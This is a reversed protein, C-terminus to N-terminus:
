FRLRFGASGSYTREAGNLIASSGMNFYLNESVNASLSANLHLLDKTPASGVNEFTAGSNVSITSAKDLNGFRHIWGAGITPVVPMRGWFWVTALNVGVKTTGTFITKAATHVAADPNGDEVVRAQRMGNYQVGIHPQAVISGLSIRRGAEFAGTVRHNTYSSSMRRLDGQGDINIYRSTDFFERSYTMMGDLYWKRWEFTGTVGVKPILIDINTFNENVDVEVRNVSGLLGLRVYSNSILDVGASLGVSEVKLSADQATANKSGFSGTPRLFFSRELPPLDSWDDDEDQMDELAQAGPAPKPEPTYGLVHEGSLNSPITHGISTPAAAAASAGGAAAGAAAGASASGGSSSGSAAAEGVDRQYDYFAAPINNCNHPRTPTRYIYQFYDLLDCSNIAPTNPGHAGHANATATGMLAAMVFFTVRGFLSFFSM